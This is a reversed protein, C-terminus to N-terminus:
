DAGDASHIEKCDGRRQVRFRPYQQRNEPTPGQESGKISGSINELFAVLVETWEEFIPRPNKKLMSQCLGKNCHLWSSSM